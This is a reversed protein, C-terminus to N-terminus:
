QQGGLPASLQPLADLDIPRGGIASDIVQAIVKLLGAIQPRGVALRALLILAADADEDTDRVQRSLEVIGRELQSVELWEKGEAAPPMGARNPYARIMHRIADNLTPRDEERVVREVIERHAKDLRFYTTKGPGGGTGRTKDKPMKEIRYGHKTKDASPITVWGAPFIWIRPLNRKVPAL